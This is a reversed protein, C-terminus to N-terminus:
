EGLVPIRTPETVVRDNVKGWCYVDGSTVVGCTM